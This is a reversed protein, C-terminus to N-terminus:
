ESQEIGLKLFEESEMIQYETNNIKMYTKDTRSQSLERELKDLLVHYEKLNAQLLPEDGTNRGSEVQLLELERLISDREKLLKIYGNSYLRRTIQISDVKINTKLILTDNWFRYANISDKIVAIVCSDGSLTETLRGDGAFGQVEDVGIVAIPIRKYEVKAIQTQQPNIFLFYGIVVVLLVSAAIALPKFYSVSPSISAAPAVSANAAAAEVETLEQLKKKLVSRNEILYLKKLDTRFELEDKLLANSNSLFVIKTKVVDNTDEKFYNDTILDRLYEAHNNEETLIQEIRKNFSEETEGELYADVISSVDQLIEANSNELVSTDTSLFSELIEINSKSM